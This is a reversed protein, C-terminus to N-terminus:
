IMVSYCEAVDCALATYCGAMGAEEGEWRPSLISTLPSFFACNELSNKWDEKLVAAFLAYNLHRVVGVRTPYYSRVFRL